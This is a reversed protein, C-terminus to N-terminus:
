TVDGKGAALCAHRSQAVDALATGGLRTDTEERLVVRQGSQRVARLELVHNCALEGQRLAVPHRERHQADIEVAELVDVVREAVPGPVQQQLLNGLPQEAIEAFAVGHRADTAIFEDEQLSGAHLGFRGALQGSADDLLQRLWEVEITVLHGDACADSDRECRLVAHLRVGQELVRVDREVACLRASAAIEAEELGAHIGQQALPALQLLVNDASDGGAAERQGKLRQKGAGTGVLRHAELRQQAPRM